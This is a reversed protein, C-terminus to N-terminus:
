NAWGAWRMQAGDEKRRQPCNIVWELALALTLKGGMGTMLRATLNLGIPARYVTPPAEPTEPLKDPAATM